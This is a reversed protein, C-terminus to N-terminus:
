TSMRAAEVLVSELSNTSQNIDVEDNMRPNLEIHSSVYKKYKLWNTKNTTLRFPKDVAVPHLNLQFLVPSHDSSLDPLSNASILNRPINKTVAFDILDPLKRPDTPWYTPTGPSVCDLKNSPKILANYLQRGKPSVLRSGWHTHKANYDGAAIFQESLSNFYDMFQLESITFRPPCYVAALKLSRYDMQVDISTAQM